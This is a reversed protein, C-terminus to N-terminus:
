SSVALVEPASIVLPDVLEVGRAVHEGGEVGGARPRLAQSPIALVEPASFTLAHPDVLEVSGAVHDGRKVGGAKVGRAERPVALM